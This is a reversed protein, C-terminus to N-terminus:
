GGSSSHAGCGHHGAAGGAGRPRRRLAAALRPAAGSVVPRPRRHPLRGAVRWGRRHVPAEVRRWHRQVVVAPRGCRSRGARPHLPQRAPVGPCPHAVVRRRPPSELAGAGHGRRRRLVGGRRAPLQAATPLRRRLHSGARRPGGGARLGAGGGQLWPSGAAPHASRRDRRGAPPCVRRRRPHRDRRRLRGAAPDGASGAALGAERGRRGAGHRGTARQVGAAAGHRVAPRRGGAPPAASGSPRDMPVVPSPGPGRRVGRRHCGGRRVGGGRDGLARAHARM